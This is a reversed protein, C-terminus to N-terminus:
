IDDPSQIGLRLRDRVRVERRGSGGSDRDGARARTGFTKASHKVRKGQRLTEYGQDSGDEPIRRQWVAQFLRLGQVLRRRSGAAGGEGVGAPIVAWCKQRRNAFRSSLMRRVPGGGSRGLRETQPTIEPWVAELGDDDSEGRIRCRRKHRGAAGPFRSTGCFHPCSSPGIRAGLLEPTSLQCSGGGNRVGLQSFRKGPGVSRRFDLKVVVPYGIRGAAESIPPPM